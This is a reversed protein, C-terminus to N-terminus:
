KQARIYGALESQSNHMQDLTTAMRELLILQASGNAQITALCNTRQTELEDRVDDLVKFRDKVLNVMYRLPFMAVYGGVAVAGAWSAAHIYKLVLTDTAEAAAQLFM